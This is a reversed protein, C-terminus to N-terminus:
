REQARSLIENVQITLLRVDMGAKLAQQIARCLNKCADKRLMAQKIMRRRESEALLEKQRIQALLETENLTFM